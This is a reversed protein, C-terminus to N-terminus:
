QKEDKEIIRIDGTKTKISVKYAADQKNEFENSVKGSESSLEFDVASNYNQIWKVIGTDSYIVADLPNEEYVIVQGKKNNLTLNGELDTLVIKGNENEIATKGIQKEIITIGERNSVALLDIASSSVVNKGIENKITMKKSTIDNLNILGAQSTVEIEGQGEKLISKGQKNNLQIDAYFNSITTEAKDSEINIQDSYIDNLRLEGAEINITLKEAQLHSLFVTGQNLTFSVDVFPEKQPLYFIVESKEMRKLLGFCDKTGLQITTKKESTTVLKDEDAKKLYGEIEVKPTEDNGIPITSIEVPYESFFAAKDKTLEELEFVKKYYNGEYFWQGSFLTVGSVFLSIISLLFIARIHLMKKGRLFWIFYYLVCLFFLALSIPGIAFFGEQVAYIMAFSFLYIVLVSCLIALILYSILKAKKLQKKRKLQQDKKYVKKVDEVAIIDTEAKLAKDLRQDEYFSAAITEPDGLGKVIEQETKGEDLQIDIQEVLDEKIENFSDMDSELFHSKMEEFFDEIKKM